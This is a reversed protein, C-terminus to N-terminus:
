SKGISNPVSENNLSGNQAFQYTPPWPAAELGPATAVQDSAQAQPSPTSSLQPPPRTTASTAHPRHPSIAKKKRHNIPILLLGPYGRAQTTGKHYQRGASFSTAGFRHRLASALALLLIFRLGHLASRLTVLFRYYLTRALFYQTVM